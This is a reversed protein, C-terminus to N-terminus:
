MRLSEELRPKSLLGDIARRAQWAQLLAIVNPLTAVEFVSKGRHTVNMDAGRELLQGVRHSLGLSVAAHLEPLRHLEPNAVTEVRSTDAGYAVLTIMLWKKTSDTRPHALGLELPTFGQADLAHVDAGADLMATMSKTGGEMAVLHLPSRGNEDQINLEVRTQSREILTSSMNASDHIAAALHMPTRGTLNQANADAGNDLLFTVFDNWGRGVALHLASQRHRDQDNINAGHALLCQVHGANGHRAVELMPTRGVKDMAHVDAGRELLSLLLEGAEVSTGCAIGALHLPTRGDAPDRSGNPRAPWKQRANVRAGQDLHELADALLGHRCAELLGADLQSQKDASM